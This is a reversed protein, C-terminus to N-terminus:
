QSKPGQGDDPIRFVLFCLTESVPDTDTRLDPLSVGVRNPETALVLRLLQAKLIANELPDLLTPTEWRMKPRFCIWNSFPKRTKLISSSVYFRLGGYNQTKYVM